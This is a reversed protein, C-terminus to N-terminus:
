LVRTLVSLVGTVGGGGAPLTIGLTNNISGQLGGAPFLIALGTTQGAPVMYRWVVTAGDQVSLTGATNAVDYYLVIQALYPRRLVGPVISITVSTNAAGVVSQPVWAKEATRLEGVDATVESAHTSSLPLNNFDRIGVLPLGPVGEQIGHSNIQFLNTAVLLQGAGSQSALAGGVDVINVNM